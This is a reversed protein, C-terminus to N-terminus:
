YFIKKIEDRIMKEIKGIRLRLSSYPIGILESMEILTKKEIYRYIFIERYEEPLANKIRELNNEDSLEDIFYEDYQHLHNLKNNEIVEELSENYRYYRRHKELNRKICNDAVRYLYARINGNLDLTDWKQYLIHFVDNLTEEALTINNELRYYCYKFLSKKYQNIIRMYENNNVM